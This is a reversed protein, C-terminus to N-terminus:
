RGEKQNRMGITVLRRWLHWALSARWSIQQAPNRRRYSANATHRRHLFTIEDVFVVDGAAEALLGLWSDHMPIGKPFPLALELLPRTIAMACGTYCNRYINRWVGRRPPFREFLRERLSEGAEDVLGADSMMAAISNRRDRMVERIRDLKQPLWIDDQDCLVIIDHKAAALVYEFNAKPDFFRRPPIVRLQPMSFQRLLDLTGDSSGDDSVVIEDGAGLQELVSQLQEAIFREGNHTALCISVPVKDFLQPAM